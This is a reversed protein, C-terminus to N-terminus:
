VHRRDAQRPIKSLAQLNGADGRRPIEQIPSTGHREALYADVADVNLAAVEYDQWRGSAVAWDRVVIYDVGAAALRARAERRSENVGAM